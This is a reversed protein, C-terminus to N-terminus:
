LEVELHEVHKIMGGIVVECRTDLGCLERVERTLSGVITISSVPTSLKSESIDAAELVTKNWEPKEVSLMMTRGAMSYDIYPGEGTLKFAIYDQVCCFKWARNYIDPENQKHWMIKNVTYISSFANGTQKYM